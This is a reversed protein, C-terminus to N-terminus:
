PTMYMSFQKNHGATTYYYRKLGFLLEADFSNSVHQNIQNILSRPVEKVLRLVRQIDLHPRISNSPILETEENFTFVHIDGLYKSPGPQEFM